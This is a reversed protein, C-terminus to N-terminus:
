EALAAQVQHQLEVPTFPKQLFYDPRARTLRMEARDLGSVMLVRLGPRASRCALIFAEVPFNLGLYDTILLGPGKHDARLANLAVARDNFTRVAYGSASLVARYLDTIGPLDDVAYILPSALTTSKLASPHAERLPPAGKFRCGSPVASRSRVLPPLAGPRAAYALVFPLPKVNIKM